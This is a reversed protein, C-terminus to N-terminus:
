RIWVTGVSTFVSIMPPSHSLTLKPTVTLKQDYWELLHTHCYFRWLQQPVQGNRIQGCLEAAFWGRGSGSHRFSVCLLHDLYFNILPLLLRAQLFPSCWAPPRFSMNYKMSLRTWLAADCSWEAANKGKMEEWHQPASWWQRLNSVALCQCWHAQQYGSSAKLAVSGSRAPHRHCRDAPCEPLCACAYHVHLM